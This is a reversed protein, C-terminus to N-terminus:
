NEKSGRWREKEDAKKMGFIERFLPFRVLIVKWLVWWGTGRRDVEGIERRVDCVFM